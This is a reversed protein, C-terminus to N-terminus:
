PRNSFLLTPGDAAIPHLVAGGSELKPVLAQTCILWIRRGGGWEDILRKETFLWKNQPTNEGDVHYPTVPLGDAPPTCEVHHGMGLEHTHGLYGVRHKLALQVTYDQVFKSSVVVLDGSAEREAVLRAMNGGNRGQRLEPIHGSVVIAAASMTIGTLACGLWFRGLLAAIGGACIGLAAGGVVCAMRAHIHDDLGDWFAAVTEKDVFSYVTGGVVFLAANAAPVWRLWRSGRELANSWEDVVLLMLPPVIPLIYSGLKASSIELFALTFAVVVFLYARFRDAAPAASSSQESGRLASFGAWAARLVGVLGPLTWPVLAVCVVGAYFLWNESHHIEGDFFAQFNERVYFFELLRPDRRYALITWPLNTAAFVVLGIWPRTANWGARLGQLIRERARAVFGAQSGGPATVVHFTGISGLVLILALPGKTMFGLSLCLWFAWKWATRASQLSVWHCYWAAWLWFAFLPDTTLASGFMVFYISGLLVLTARTAFRPGRLRAAALFTIWLMGTAALISPLRIAISGDGGIWRSFAAAWYLLIPKELYPVYGLHPVVWDGSELMERAAEIYRIESSVPIRLSLLCCTVFGLAVVLGARLLLPQAGAGAPTRDARDSVPNMSASDAPGVAAFAQFERPGSRAGLALAPGRSGSAQSRPSHHTHFDVDSPTRHRAEGSFAL